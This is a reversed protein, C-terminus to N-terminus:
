IEFWPQLIQPKIRPLQFGCSSTSPDPDGWNSARGAPLRWDGTCQTPPTAHITGCLFLLIFYFLSYGQPILYSSEELESFPNKWLFFKAWFEKWLALFSCKPFETVSSCEAGAHAATSAFLLLSNGRHWFLMRYPNGLPTSTFSVKRDEACSPPSHNGEHQPQKM